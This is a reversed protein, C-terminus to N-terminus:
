EIYESNEQAPQLEKQFEFISNLLAELEAVAEFDKSESAINKEINIEEVLAMTQHILMEKKAIYMIQVDQIAMREEQTMSALIEPDQEPEPADAIEKRLVQLDSKLRSFESEIMTNYSNNEIKANNKKDECGISVFFISALFFGYIIKM